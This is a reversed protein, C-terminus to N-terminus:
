SLAGVAARFAGGPVLQVFLGFFAVDLATGRHGLLLQLIREAASPPSRSEGPRRMRAVTAWHGSPRKLFGPRGPLPTQLAEAPTRRRCGAQQVGGPRTDGAKRSCAARPSPPPVPERIWPRPGARGPRTPIGHEEAVNQGVTTSSCVVAVRQKHGPPTSGLEDADHHRALADLVPAEDHNLDWTDSGMYLGRVAQFLAKRAAAACRRRKTRAPQGARGRYQAGASSRCRTFRSIVGSKCRKTRIPM